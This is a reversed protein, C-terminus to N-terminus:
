RTFYQSLRRTEEAIDPHSGGVCSGFPGQYLRIDGGKLLRYARRPHWSLHSMGILFYAIPERRISHVDADSVNPLLKKISSSDNASFVGTVSKFGNVEFNHM